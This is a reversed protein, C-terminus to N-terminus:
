ESPAQESWSRYWAERRARQQQVREVILARQRDDLVANFEIVEDLMCHAATRRAEMLQDVGAHLGASDGPDGEVVAALLLFTENGQQSDPSYCRGRIDAMMIRWAARQEETFELATALESMGGARSRAQRQTRTRAPGQSGTPGQPQPEEQAGWGAAAPGQAGRWGAQYDEPPQEATPAEALVQGALTVLSGM